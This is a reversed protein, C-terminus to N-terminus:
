HNDLIEKGALDKAKVWGEGPVLFLHDETVTVSTGDELNVRVWNDKVGNDHVDVVAETTLGTEPEWSLVRPRLDRRVIEEISVTEGNALHVLTEGDFCSAGDLKDMIM